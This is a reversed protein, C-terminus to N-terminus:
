IDSVVMKKMDMGGGGSVVRNFHHRAVFSVVFNFSVGIGAIESSEM